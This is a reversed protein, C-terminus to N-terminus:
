CQTRSTTRAVTFRALNHGVFQPHYNEHCSWVLMATFGNDVKYQMRQEGWGESCNVSLSFNHIKGLNTFTFTDVFIELKEVVFFIPLM